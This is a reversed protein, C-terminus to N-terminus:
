FLESPLTLGAVKVSDIVVFSLLLNLALASIFERRWEEDDLPTGHLNGAPLPPTRLPRGDPPLGFLAIQACARFAVSPWPLGHVTMSSWPLGHLGPRHSVLAHTSGLRGPYLLPMARASRCVRHRTSQLLARSRVIYLLFLSSGWFLVANVAWAFVLSGLCCRGLAVSAVPHRAVRKIDIVSACGAPLTSRDYHVDLHTSIASWLCRRRGVLM